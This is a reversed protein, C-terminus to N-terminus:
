RPLVIIGIACVAVVVVFFIYFRRRRADGAGSRQFHSPADCGPCRDADAPVDVGCYLCRVPEM